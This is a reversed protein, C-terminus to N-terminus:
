QKSLYHNLAIAQAALYTSAEGIKFFGKKVIFVDKSQKIKYGKTTLKQIM